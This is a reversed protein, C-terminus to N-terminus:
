RIKEIYLAKNVNTIKWSVNQGSANTSDAYGLTMKFVFNFSAQSAPLPADNTFNTLSYDTYEVIVNSGNDTKLPLTIGSWSSLSTEIVESFASDYFTTGNSPSPISLNNKEYIKLQNWRPGGITRYFFGNNVQIFVELKVINPMVSGINKTLTIRNFMKINFFGANPFAGIPSAITQASNSTNIAAYVVVTLISPSNYVMLIASGDDELISYRKGNRTTWLKGNEDREIAGNQPITTLVGNPIILAPTTATGSATKVYDNSIAITGSKNPLTLTRNQNPTIPKLLTSWGDPTIWKITEWGYQTKTIGNDERDLQAVFMDQLMETINSSVTDNVKLGKSFNWPANITQAKTKIWNWWNFLKSRSVVKNDEPITDNIQMEADTAITGTLKIQNLQKGMEATLAKTAGGTTLDNILITDLSIQVEEIADVIEQLTDLDVNDSSLLKHIANIQNQLIVGQEASLISATGGTTLDNIITLYQSAIKALDNLPAYGNAIGKQSKDEKSTELLKGMEATLAKTVGGTTLDNVLITSLSIQIQEVVDAIKQITDLDVNDSSLLTNISDIQNQLIVGQEASLLATEGGTTLNNVVDLYQHTIKSFENLPVYGGATGKESKNEKSSFLEAHANPNNQHEELQSKEAKTLLTTELEEIDKLPIQEFKHRFSDWTDWFQNQTPKLGTKFWKKITNLTQIAM